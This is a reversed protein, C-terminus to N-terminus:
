QKFPYREIIGTLTGHDGLHGLVLEKSKFTMQEQYALLKLAKVSDEKNNLRTITIHPRYRSGILLAGFTEKDYRDEETLGTIDVLHPLILGERLPNASDVAEQHLTQLNENKQCDWFLFTELTIIIQELTINFPRTESIIKQCILKIKEINKIPYHAQYVTIHPFLKGQKLIFRSGVVSNIKQSMEIVQDAIEDPPLIAINLSVSNRSRNM